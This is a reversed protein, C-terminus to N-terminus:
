RAEETTICESEIYEIGEERAMDTLTSGLLREIKDAAENHGDWSSPEVDIVFSSEVTVRIKSM